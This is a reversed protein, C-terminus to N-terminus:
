PLTAAPEAVASRWHAAHTTPVLKEVALPSVVHVNTLLAHAGPVYVLASAVAVLSRVQATHASPENVATAPSLVHATHRVHATPKPRDTGPVAVESRCHAAHTAPTVKEAVSSALIHVAALRDHSAPEYVTRAAVALLSRVQAAHTDPVNVLLVPEVDHAGHLVHAAPSPMDLAPEAVTSRWHAGQASPTVYESAVLPKAHLAVVCHVFECNSLRAGVVVMSLNHVMCPADHGSPCYVILAGVFVEPRTQEAMVTHPAPMYSVASGVAEESRTQTIQAAPM